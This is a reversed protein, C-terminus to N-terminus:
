YKVTKQYAPPPLEIELACTERRSGARSSPLENEFKIKEALHQASLLQFFPPQRFRGEESHEVQLVEEYTPLPPLQPVASSESLALRTAQRLAVKAVLRAKARRDLLRNLYLLLAALLSLAIMAIVGFELFELTDQDM